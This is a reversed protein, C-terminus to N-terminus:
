RNVPPVTNPQRGVRTRPPEVVRTWGRPVSVSFPDRFQPLLANKKIDRFEFATRDQGSPSFLQLAKPEVDNNAVALILEARRFNAADAQYRPYAELWIQGQVNQPTIVRLYYRRKLKAAEAGFLFPLPGDQIAKGQMEPPLIYQSVQKTHHNVESVSQGNCVWHDERLPEIAAWKGDRYTEQVHFLGRDPAGYEVIGRDINRPKRPDVVHGNAGVGVRYEWRTFGCSFRNVQQGRYEWFRLVQDLYAEHQPTLPFGKPLPLSQMAQRPNMPPTAPATAVGPRIAPGQPQVPGTPQTPQM